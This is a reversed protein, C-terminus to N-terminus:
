PRLVGNLPRVVQPDTDVQLAQLAPLAQARPRDLSGLARVAAGRVAPDTDSLLPVIADFGWNETRWSISRVSLRRATPDQDSLGQRLGNVISQSRVEPRYGLLRMAEARVLVSPDALAGEFAERADDEGQKKYGNLLAVRLDSPLTQILSWPLRHEGDLAYALAVRVPMEEDGFLLRHQILKQARDDVLDAGPFFYAGARNKVPEMEDVRLAIEPHHQRIHEAASSVEADLGSALGMASITMIIMTLTTM